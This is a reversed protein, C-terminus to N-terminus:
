FSGNNRQNTTQARLVGEKLKLFWTAAVIEVVRVHGQLGDVLRQSVSLDGIGLDLLRGHPITITLGQTM